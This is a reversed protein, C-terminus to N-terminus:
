LIKIERTTVLLFLFMIQKQTNIVLTSSSINLQSVKKFIAIKSYHNKKKKLSLSVKSTMLYLETMSDNLFNLTLSTSYVGVIM